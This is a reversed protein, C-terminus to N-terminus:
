EQLNLAVGPQPNIFFLAPFSTINHEPFFLLGQYAHVSKLAKGRTKREVKKESKRNKEQRPLAATLFQQINGQTVPSQGSVSISVTSYGVLTKIQHNGRSIFGAARVKVSFFYVTPAIAKDCKM